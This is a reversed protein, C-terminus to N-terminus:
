VCVKLRADLCVGSMCISVDEVGARMHRLFALTQECMSRWAHQCRVPVTEGMWQCVAAESDERLGLGRGRGGVTPVRGQPQGVLLRQSDPLLSHGGIGGPCHHVGCGEAGWQTGARGLPGGAGPVYGGVSLSLFLDTPM